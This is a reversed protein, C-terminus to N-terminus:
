WRGRVPGGPSRGEFEPYAGSAASMLLIARGDADVAYPMLSGFPYGSIKNSLTLLVGVGRAAVLERATM